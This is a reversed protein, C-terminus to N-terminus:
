RPNGERTTQEQQAQPLARAFATARLFGSSSRVTIFQDGKQAIRALFVMGQSTTISVGVLKVVEGPSLSFHNRRLYSDPGLHVDVIGASTQITVHAGLPPVQSDGAYSLVTGELVTERSRDYATHRQSVLPSREQASAAIPLAMSGIVLACGIMLCVRLKM